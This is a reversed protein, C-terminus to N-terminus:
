SFCCAHSWPDFDDILRATYKLGLWVSRPRFVLVFYSVFICGVAHEFVEVARVNFLPM